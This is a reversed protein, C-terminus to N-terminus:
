RTPSVVDFAAWAIVRRGRELTVRWRGPELPLPGDHDALLLRRGAALRVGAAFTRGGPARWTHVLDVARPEPNWLCRLAPRRDAALTTVPAVDGDATRTGVELRVPGPLAGPAVAPLALRLRREALPLEVEFEGAGLLAGAEDEVRVRWTGGELPAPAPCAVEARADGPGVSLATSTWAEGSPAEWRYVVQRREGWPVWVTRCVVPDGDAFRPGGVFTLRKLGHSRLADPDLDDAERGARARFAQQTRAYWAACARTYAAVREPFAAAVNTQETPDAALDYLAAREGVQHGVFKWRGDRLGWRPPHVLTHFYVRRLAYDDPWLSQGPVDPPPLRLARALTPLVDGAAAVRASTVDEDLVGPALLLLFTRVNEEYLANKHLLNGAHRRGFAQGHDGVIAVLTRAPDVGALLRELAADAAHLAHLYRAAPEEAGAFPSEHGDPAAYPYHTSITLYACAAPRPATRLWALAEDVYGDDRIGWAHDGRAARWAGDHQGPHALRDPGLGALFGDCCEVRLDGASLLATTYGGGRLASVLTPGPYPASLEEFVGGWTITQGGTLLSVLSRTTAPYTAYVSTFAVGGAAFRRALHPTRAPDLRGGPFLQEAGVSELMVFLVDLPPADLNTLRALARRLAADVEPEDHAAGHLPRLLDDDTAAGDTPAPEAPAGAARLLALCPHEELRHNDLTAHALGSAGLLLAALWRRRRLLAGWRAARLPRAVAAAALGLAVSANAVAAGPGVQVLATEVLVRPGTRLDLHNTEALSPNLHAFWLSYVAQDVLVYLDLLLLVLVPLLRLWRRSWCAAALLGLASAVALHELQLLPLSVAFRAADDVPALSGRVFWAYSEVQVLLLLALHAAALSLGVDRPSSM